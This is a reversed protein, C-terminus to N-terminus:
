PVEQRRLNPSYNKQVLALDSYCTATQPHVEGLLKVALDTAKRYIREAELLRGQSEIARGLKTYISAIVFHEKGIVETSM